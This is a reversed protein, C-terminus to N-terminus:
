AGPGEAGRDRWPTNRGASRNGSSHLREPRLGARRDVVGVHGHRSMILAIGGIMLGLAVARGAATVPSLDGYGVTTITVFAWWIADGFTTIAGGDQEADLVALGAILVTLATAGVTYLVVKGRLMNGTNRSILAIVTLFRMLRLPRLMPLIVIALDLLHRSFWRWRNETIWLRTVYDVAFLAWTTILVIECVLGVVGDPRAVIQTAYAVLFLIAAITLPWEVARDWKQIRQGYM